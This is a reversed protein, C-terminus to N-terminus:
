FMRYVEHNRNESLLLSVSICLFFSSDAECVDQLEKMTDQFEIVSPNLLLRSGRHSFRNFQTDVLANFLSTAVEKTKESLSPLHRFAYTVVVVGYLSKPTTKSRMPTITDQGSAPTSYVPTSLSISPAGIPYGSQFTTTPPQGSAATDVTVVAADIHEETGTPDNADEQTEEAKAVGQDDTVTGKVTMCRQSTLAKHAPMAPDDASHHPFHVPLLRRTELLLHPQKKHEDDDADLLETHSKADNQMARLRKCFSRNTLNVKRRVSRLNLSVVLGIKEVLVLACELLTQQASRGQEAFSTTSRRKTCTSRCLRLSM